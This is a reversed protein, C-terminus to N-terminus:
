EVAREPQLHAHSVVRNRGQRKASLMAADADNILELFDHHASHQTAVGISVSCHLEAGEACSFPTTAISHRIREAVICAETVATEPLTICFEEGGYRGFIDSSRLKEQCIVAIRQLVEDGVAHGYGDNITKFHDADLLLVSLDRGHRRALNFQRSSLEFFHNRRLTATLDDHSAKRELLTNHLQLKEVATVLDGVIECRQHCLGEKVSHKPLYRERVRFREDGHSAHITNLRMNQTTLDAVTLVGPAIGVPRAM